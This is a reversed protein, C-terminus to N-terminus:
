QFSHVRESEYKSHTCDWLPCLKDFHRANIHFGVLLDGASLTSSDWLKLFSILASGRDIIYGTHSFYLGSFLNLVDQVISMYILYPHIDSMTQVVIYAQVSLVSPTQMVRPILGPARGTVPSLFPSLSSFILFFTRCTQSFIVLNCLNSILASMYSMVAHTTTTVQSQGQRHWKTEMSESQNNIDLARKTLGGGNRQGGM